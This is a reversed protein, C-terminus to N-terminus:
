AGGGGGGLKMGAGSFPVFGKPKKNEPGGRGGEQAEEEDSHYFELGHQYEHRFKCNRGESCREKKGGGLGGRGGGAKKPKPKAKPKVPVAGRTNFQNACPSVFINQDRKQREMDEESDDKPQAHPSPKVDLVEIDPDSGKDNKGSDAKPPPAADDEDSSDLLSIVKPANTM